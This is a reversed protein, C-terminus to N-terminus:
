SEETTKEKLLTVVSLILFLLVIQYTVITLYSVVALRAVTPLLPLLNNLVSEGFPYLFIQSFYFATGNVIAIALLLIVFRKFVEAVPTGHLIKRVELYESVWLIELLVGGAVMSYLMFDKFFSIGQVLAQFTYVAFIWMPLALVTLLLFAVSADKLVLSAYKKVSEDLELFLKKEFWCGIFFTMFGNALTDSLGVPFRFNFFFDQWQWVAPAVFIPFIILNDFVFFTLMAALGTTVGYNKELANTRQLWKTFIAVTLYTTILGPLYFYVGIWPWFMYLPRNFAVFAEVFTAFIGSVIGVALGWLTSKKVSFDGHFVLFLVVNFSNSIRCIPLLFTEDFEM